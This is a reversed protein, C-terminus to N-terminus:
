FRIQCLAKMSTKDSFYGDECKADCLRYEPYRNCILMCDQNYGSWDNNNMADGELHPDVDIGTREWIIRTHNDARQAGTFMWSANDKDCALDDACFCSLILGLESVSFEALHSTSGELGQPPTLSQCMSKALSYKGLPLTIAQYLVSSGTDPDPLNVWGSFASTSCKSVNEQNILKLNPASGISTKGSFNFVHNPQCLNITGEQSFNFASNEQLFKEIEQTFNLDIECSDSECNTFNIGVQSQSPCLKLDLDVEYFNSPEGTCTGGTFHDIHAFTNRKKKSYTPNEPKREKIKKQFDSCGSAQM